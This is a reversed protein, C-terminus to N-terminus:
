RFGDYKNMMKAAYAFAKKMSTFTKTYSPLTVYNLVVNVEWDRPSGIVKISVEKVKNFSKADGLFRKMFVVQDTYDTRFWYDKIGLIDLSLSM